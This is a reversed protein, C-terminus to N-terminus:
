EERSRSIKEVSVGQVGEASLAAAIAEAETKSTFPGVAFAAAGDPLAERVIDRSTAARIVDQAHQDLEGSASRLVVRYSDASGDKELARATKLAIKQGDRFAVIFAERFGQRKAKNLNSLAENYTYFLGASYIYKGASPNRVFVPSLGKLHKVGAPYATAFIQIQYVLGSPLTNDEAFQGVPLVKFSYDFKSQPAEVMIEFPGGPERRAFEYAPAKDAPKKELSKMAEDPDIIFGNMLFEMEMSQLRSNKVSLSDSLSNMKKEAESIEAAATEKEVDTGLEDYLLRLDNLTLAHVAISDRLARIERLLGAYGGADLGPPVEDDDEVSAQTDQPVELSAIRLMESHDSVSRKVPMPEYEMVYVTLSDGVASRDSVLVSWREDPSIAFLIDDYPSSYPFGMNVPAGWEGADEDWVSMYLDYGGVGYLGDSSFFLTKGDPSIVPFRENGISTMAENLMHPYQWLTDNLRATTFLNWAGEEDKDAYYIVDAGEPYFFASPYGDGANGVLSNPTKRWSRDEMPLYLYFEEKAVNRRAVVKPESVFDLLSLGNRCCLIREQLSDRFTSDGEAALTDLLSLAEAYRYENMLSVARGLSDQQQGFASSVLAPCMIAVALFCRFM